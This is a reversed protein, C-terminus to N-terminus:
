VVSPLEQELTLVEAFVDGRAEVRELVGSAEFALASAEGREAAEALEEWGVPTSVTPRERARLSYACVTTKHDDNQSWDVFVKGTRRAKRMVSTVGEPHRKELLMAVSHAFRKTEDFDVETNLPVNIHLGKGGSTKPFCRVGLKELLERLEFAIGACDPVTVGPRPDLDFVMSTPKTMDSDRALLTHLELSALNAVWILSSLNNIMCYNVVSRENNSQVSKTSVWGPHYAPCEKEYFYEGEVGDPYRKMTVPHGELHPLMVPGIRAYYDIVQAKTFGASPYLVKDLNSLKLRNGEVEIERVTKM